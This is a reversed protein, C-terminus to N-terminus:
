RVSIMHFEGCIRIRLRAYEPTELMKKQRSGFVVM